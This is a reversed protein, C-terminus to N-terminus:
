FPYWRMTMIVLILVVAGAFLYELIKALNLEKKLRATILGVFIYFITTLIMSRVMSDTRWFVLILFIEYTILGLLIVFFWSHTSLNATAWLLYYFLLSAIILTLLQAAWFPLFFSFYLDYVILYDLFVTLLILFHVFGSIKPLDKEEEVPIQRYVLMFYFFSLAVVMIVIQRLVKSPEFIIFFCAGLILLGPLIMKKFKLLFRQLLHGGLIWFLFLLGILTPAAAIVWIYAQKYYLAELIALLILSAILATIPHYYSKLDIPFFKTKAM